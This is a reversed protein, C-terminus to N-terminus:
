KLYGIIKGGDIGPLWIGGDSMNIYFSYPGFDFTYYFMKQSTPYTSTKIGVEIFKEKGGYYYSIASCLDTQKSLEVMRQILEVGGIDIKGTVYDKGCISITQTEPFIVAAPIKSVPPSVEMVAPSKQNGWWFGTLVAAAIILIIVEQKRTM